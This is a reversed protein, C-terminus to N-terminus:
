SSHNQNMEQRYTSPNKGFENKFSRSFTAQDKFGVEMAIHLIPFDTNELYERAKNLRFSRIINSASQGTLAKLKRFLQTRSTFMMKALKETDLSVDDLHENLTLKLKDLFEEEQSLPSINEDGSTALIWYKSRLKERQNLLNAIIAKLEDPNFPKSLYADAGTKYGQVKSHLDSKATLMVIPIHSTLFNTKLLDCVEYGDLGPMMIDTVIIDPLSLIAKDIGTQGDNAIDIFYAESLISKTYYAVDKNDEILLLSPLDAKYVSNSHNSSEGTKIEEFTLSDAEQEEKETESVWPLIIIFDSGQGEKSRVYLGGKMLSILEKVISLGIGTGEKSKHDIQYFRDFIKPILDQPIGKGEDSVTIKIYFTSSQNIDAYKVIEIANEIKFPHSLYELSLIIESGENSYKIANSLLNSLVIEVKEPDYDLNLKDLSTRIKFNIQNQNALNNFPERIRKMHGVLDKNQLNIFIVGSTIKSLDLLQNILSLLKQGNKSILNLDHKVPDTSNSQLKDALGIMVTLPTRFEHTINTYFDTKLEDIELLKKTEEEKLLLSQHIYSSITDFIVKSIVLLHLVFLFLNWSEPLLYYPEIYKELIAAGIISVIFLVFLLKFHKPRLFSIAHLAGALGVLAVGGSRLLGGFVLTAAFSFILHFYLSFAAVMYENRRTRFLYAVMSLQILAFLIM